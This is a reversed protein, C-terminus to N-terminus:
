QNDYSFSLFISEVLTSRLKSIKVKPVFLLFRAPVIM